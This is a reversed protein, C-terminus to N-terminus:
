AGRLTRLAMRARRLDRSIVCFRSRCQGARHTFHGFHSSSGGTTGTVEANRWAMPIIERVVEIVRYVGRRLAARYRHGGRRYRLVAM